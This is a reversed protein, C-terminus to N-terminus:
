EGEEQKKREGTREGKGGGSCEKKRSGGKARQSINRKWQQHLKLRIPQAPAATSNQCLVKIRGCKKAHMEGIDLVIHHYLHQLFSSNSFFKKEWM